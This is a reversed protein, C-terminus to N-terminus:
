EIPEVVIEKIRQQATNDRQTVTFRWATRATEVRINPTVTVSPASVNVVPPPVVTMGSSPVTPQPHSLISVVRANLAKMERLIDKIETDEEEPAEIPKPEMALKAIQLTFSRLEGVLAAVDPSVFPVTVASIAKARSSRYEDQISNM